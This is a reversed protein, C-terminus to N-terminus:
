FDFKFKEKKMLSYLKLVSHLSHKYLFLRKEKDSKFLSSVIHYEKHYVVIDPTYVFKLHDKMRRYNLFDEESYMFMENWFVTPYRELYKKSFILASGHLSLDEQRIQSNVIFEKKHSDLGFKTKFFKYMELIKLTDLNFSYYFRLFIMKFIHKRLANYSYLNAGYPNQHILNLTIIDPGLVDFFSANYEHQIKDFFDNQKIVTDNNLVCLFSPDYTNKAYDCGINNGVSYGFNENNLLVDVIKNDHYLTLLSEGTGNNSGNDVVIIKYNDNKLNELISDICKKTDEISKYHLIIFAINIM